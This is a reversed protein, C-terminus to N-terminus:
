AQIKKGGKKANFEINQSVRNSVLTLTLPSSASKSMKQNKGIKDFKESNQSEPIKEVKPIKKKLIQTKKSSQSM